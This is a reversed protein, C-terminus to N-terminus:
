AICIAAFPLLTAMVKVGDDKRNKVKSAKKGKAVPPGMAWISGDSYTLEIRQITAKGEVKLSLLELSSLAQM